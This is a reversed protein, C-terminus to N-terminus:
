GDSVVRILLAIAIVMVGIVTVLATIELKDFSRM